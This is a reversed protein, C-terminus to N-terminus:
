SPCSSARSGTPSGSCRRRRVRRRPSSGGSRRSRPRAGRRADGRGRAPGVHQADRRVRHRRSRRRRTGARRDADLRRGRVRRRRGSRRHRDERRPARRLPRGVALQDIPIEEGDRSGRPRRVSPSCRTSRMVPAAGPGPRSTSASCCCTIIAAATEFYVHASGRGGRMGSSTADLFVLAVVSWLWAATTGLSVLTDMTVAGHRLNVLTARHFPWGAWFIVPTSLVLAIWQWGDVMFAPVMSVLLVPVTLVAAVILRPRVSSEDGHDHAHDHEHGPEPEPVSYGLDAVKTRFADPGTVSEDYLVTATETALNVRCESVGDLSGLGREVRGVCSACTMGAIPLDVRQTQEAETGDTQIHTRGATM